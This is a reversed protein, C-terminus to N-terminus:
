RKKKEEPKRRAAALEQQRDAFLKHAGELLNSKPNAGCHDDMRTFAQAPTLRSTASTGWFDLKSALSFGDFYGQVYHEYNVANGKKRAATWDSCAIIASVFVDQAKAPPPAAMLAAALLPAALTAAPSAKM